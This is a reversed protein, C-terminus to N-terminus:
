RGAYEKVVADVEKKLRKWYEKPMGDEQNAGPIWNTEPSKLESDRIKRDMARIQESLTGRGDSHKSLIDLADPEIRRVLTKM